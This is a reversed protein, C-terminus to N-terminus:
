FYNRQHFDVFRNTSHLKIRKKDIPTYMGKEIIEPHAKLARRVHSATWYRFRNAQRRKRNTNSGEVVWRLLAAHEHPSRQLQRYNKAM